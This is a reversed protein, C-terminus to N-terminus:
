RFRSSKVGQVAVDWIVELQRGGHTLKVESAMINLPISAAYTDFHKKPPPPPMFVSDAVSVVVVIFSCVCSYM